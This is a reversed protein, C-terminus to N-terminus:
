LEDALRSRSSRSSLLLLLLLLLKLLPPIGSIACRAFRLTAIVVDYRAYRTLDMRSAFAGRDFKVTSNRDALTIQDLGIRDSRIRLPIAARRPRSRLAANVASRDRIGVNNNRFFFLRRPSLGPM